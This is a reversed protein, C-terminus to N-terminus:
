QWALLALAGDPNRAHRAIGIAAVDAFAGAPSHLSLGPAPAASGWVLGLECQGNGIAALVEEDSDLVPIALNEMWGRVIAQTDRVGLEDILMAIVLQNVQNQSSSLCLKGAFRQEALSAYDLDRQINVAAAIVATRVNTSTWLNDPDRRWAPARELVADAVIARLAGEEAARWADIVSRTMLVDASPTIRNEILDDVIKEAAGRRVVVHIGSEETYAAMLERLATDDEFAAFVVVPEKRAETAPPEDPGACAALVISLAVLRAAKAIRVM